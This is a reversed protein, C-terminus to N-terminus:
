AAKRMRKKWERQEARVFTATRKVAEAFWGKQRKALDAGIAKRKDTVGLHIAALDRAMARLMKKDILELPHTEADLKRNNPSLRRVIVDDSLAYWPDPARHAGTAIEYCRLTQAGRGRVRTWASPLAAKAERLIPASHWEMTGVFRPRGLSGAGATRRVYVIKGRPDPMADTIARLYRPPPTVAPRLAAMKEWFHAREGNPVNVLRRLWAYDHDLVIPQPNELGRTYGRLINACIDAATDLHPCGLMASTGLRVLDLAYPMDAAEDFDNVGWILRGDADRWTGYNELHIDGVALVQPAKALEPCVDLITEAWRWYTARLFPFPGSAMKAHKTAIDTEVIDRGLEARLWAEYGATSEVINM